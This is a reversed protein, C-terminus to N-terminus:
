NDFNVNKFDALENAKKLYTKRYNNEGSRGNIRSLGFYGFAAYENGYNGFLSIDHVGKIYNVEALNDDNYKKEKLIGNFISQQALYYSNTINAGSSKMTIEAEDYRKVLLTNKIHLALYQINDPYLEHLAKSYFYAQEFNNEFGINIASLFSLAEAKFLISSGSAIQLEKIGKLKDGRPFLLALPKYVPYAEPYASRTYNYLGTFFLFDSYSATYDFSERIYKYSSAALPIVEISLDHESYLLLLMGRASLNILLYEAENGPDMKVECLEICKRLDKEFSSYAPANPLIPYNKWYTILGKLLFIVPHDKYKQDLKAFIENAEDFNLNYVDDVSKQILKLSNTDKLIQADLVPQILFFVLISYLVSTKIKKINFSFCIAM